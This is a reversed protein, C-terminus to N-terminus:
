VAVGAVADKFDAFNRAAEFLEGAFEFDGNDGERLKVTGYSSAIVWARGQRVEAIGTRNLLVGVKDHEEMAWIIVILTFFAVFFSMDGLEDDAFVTMARYADDLEVEVWFEETEHGEILFSFFLSKQLCVM